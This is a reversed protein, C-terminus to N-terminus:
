MCRLGPPLSGREDKSEISLLLSTRMMEFCLTYELLSGTAQIM